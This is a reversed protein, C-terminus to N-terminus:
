SGARQLYAALAPLDAELYPLPVMMQTDRKPNYGPPYENRIVKAQLLELSAGHVAPGLGGDRTPDLHHCAICHTRYLREGRAALAQATEGGSQTAAATEHGQPADAAGGDNATTEAARRDALATEGESCALLAAAAALLFFRRM